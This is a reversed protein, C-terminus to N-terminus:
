HLKSPRYSIRLRYCLDRAKLAGFPLPIPPRSIKHVKAFNGKEGEGYIVVPRLITSPVSAARVAEEAALKSRDYANNPKPPDNETLDYDAFSGSQASISSILVLQKTGLKSAARALAATAQHNVRDYLDDLAFTHAIGALHIM